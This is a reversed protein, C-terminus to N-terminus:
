DAKIKTQNNLTIFFPLDHAVFKNENRKVYPVTVNKSGNGGPLM